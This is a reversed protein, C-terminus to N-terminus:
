TSWAAVYAVEMDVDEGGLTGEDPTTAGGAIGNPFGGGVAVNLLIMKPNASLARWVAENSQLQAPGIQWTLRRDVYFNLSQQTWDAASRDIEAAVTHWEGRTFPASSGIGNFEDCVGGPAQDCHVTHYVTSVGNATELIDIEGVSPWLDHNDRFESGMMWFAPWVTRLYNASQANALYSIFNRGSTAPFPPSFFLSLLSSFFLFFSFFSFSTSGMETGAAMNPSGVKLNAEVWLKCGEPAAFDVAATTEIRASTWQGGSNQPTIVLNGEANVHINTPDQTYTQIEGTGWNAPGNPYSTGLDYTWTGTDLAGASFDDLFLQNTYGPPPATNNQRAQILRGTPRNIPKACAIGSLVALASLIATKTM